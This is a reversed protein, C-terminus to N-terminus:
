FNYVLSLAAKTPGIYNRHKREQCKLCPLNPSEKYWLRAFGAGIEAELNWHPSLIWDYGYGVGAGALWGDYLRSSFGGYYQAGHLHFDVFSGEFKECMWLKLEPQLLILHMKRDSRFTWPNYAAALELTTRSGLATEVGANLTTTALYLANTKLAVTQADATHTIAAVLLAIILTRLRRSVNGAQPKIVNNNM